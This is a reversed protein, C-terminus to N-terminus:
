RNTNCNIIEVTSQHLQTIRVFRYSSSTQVFVHVRADISYHSSSFIIFPYHYDDFLRLPENALLQLDYYLNHIIRKQFTVYMLCIFLNTKM